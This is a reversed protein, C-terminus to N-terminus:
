GHVPQASRAHVRDGGRGARNGGALHVQEDSASDLAHRARREHHVLRIGRECAPDREFVGREAPPEHVGPHLLQVPRVRHRLGRLVDGGLPLDRARILICKSEPTLLACTDGDGVAAQTIFDHRRDDRLALRRDGHATVLM